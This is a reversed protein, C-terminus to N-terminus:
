RTVYWYSKTQSFQRDVDFDYATTLRLQAVVALPQRFADTGQLPVVSDIDELSQAYQKHEEIM